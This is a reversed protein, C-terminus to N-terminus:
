PTVSALARMTEYGYMLSPIMDGTATVNFNFENVVERSAQVTGRGAATVANVPLEISGRIGKALGRMLDQGIDEFVKSPSRIGTIDRIKNIIAQIASAFWNVVKQLNRRMGENLGAILDLGLQIFDDIFSEGIGIIANFAGRMRGVLQNIATTLISALRSVRESM